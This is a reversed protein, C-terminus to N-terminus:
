MKNGIKHLAIYLTIIVIPTIFTLVLIFLKFHM